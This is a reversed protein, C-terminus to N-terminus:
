DFAYATPIMLSSGGQYLCGPTADLVPIPFGQVQSVSNLFQDSPLRTNDDDSSLYQETPATFCSYKMARIQHPFHSEVQRPTGSLRDESARSKKRNVGGQVIM